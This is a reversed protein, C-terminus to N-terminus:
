VMSRPPRAGGREDIWNVVVDIGPREVERRDPRTPLVMVVHKGDPM